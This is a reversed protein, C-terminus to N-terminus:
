IYFYAPVKNSSLSMSLRNTLDDSFNFRQFYTQQLTQWLWSCQWIRLLLWVLSSFYLVIYVWPCSGLNEQPKEKGKTTTAVHLYFLKKIGVMLDLMWYVSVIHFYSCKTYLQFLYESSVNSLFSLKKDTINRKIFTFIERFPPLM